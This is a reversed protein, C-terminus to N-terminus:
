IDVPHGYCNPLLLPGSNRIGRVGQIYGTHITTNNSMLYLQLFQVNYINTFSDEEGSILQQDDHGPSPHCLHCQSMVSRSWDPELM